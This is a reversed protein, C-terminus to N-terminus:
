PLPYPRLAASCDNSRNQCCWPSSIPVSACAAPESSPEEPGDAGETRRGTKSISIPEAPALSHCCATTDNVTSDEIAGATSEMCTREEGKLSAGDADSRSSAFTEAPYWSPAALANNLPFTSATLALM